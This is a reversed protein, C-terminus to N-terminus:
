RSPQAEESVMTDVADGPSDEAPSAAAPYDGALLPGEPAPDPGPLAFAPAVPAPASPAPTAATPLPAEPVPPRVDPALGVIVLAALLGSALGFGPWIWPRVGAVPWSPRRRRAERIQLALAPWLSPSDPRAPPLAAAAHLVDQIDRLAALHRRCGACLLLHREVPRRDLGLGDGGALLPLRTRVWTCPKNGM